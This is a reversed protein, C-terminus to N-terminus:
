YHYQQCATRGYYKAYEALAQNRLKSYERFYSLAEENGPHTDLFLQVDNVAFSVVNIWNLLDQKCPINNTM